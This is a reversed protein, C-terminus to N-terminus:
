NDEIFVSTHHNVAAAYLQSISNQQTKDVMNLNFLVCVVIKVDASIEFINKEM